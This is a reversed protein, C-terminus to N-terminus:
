TRLVSQILLEKAFTHPRRRLVRIGFRISESAWGSGHGGHFMRLVNIKQILDVRHIAPPNGVLRNPEGGDFTHRAFMEGNSLTRVLTPVAVSSSNMDCGGGNDGNLNVDM